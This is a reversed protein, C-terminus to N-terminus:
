AETCSIANCLYKRCQVSDVALKVVGDTMRQHSEFFPTLQVGRYLYEADVKAQFMIRKMTAKSSKGGVKTLLDQVCEFPLDKLLALLSRAGTSTATGCQVVSLAISTAVDDLQKSVDATIPPIVAGETEIDENEIPIHILQKWMKDPVHWTPQLM